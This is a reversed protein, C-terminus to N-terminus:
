WAARLSTSQCISRFVEHNRPNKSKVNYILLEAYPANDNFAHLSKPFDGNKEYFGYALPKVVGSGCNMEHMSIGDPMFDAVKSAGKMYFTVTSTGTRKMAPSGNPLEGFLVYATITDYTEVSVQGYLPKEIIMAETSYVAM